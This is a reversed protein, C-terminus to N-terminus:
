SDDVHMVYRVLLIGKREPAYHVRRCDDFPDVFLSSQNASGHCSIERKCADHDELICANHDLLSEWGHVM